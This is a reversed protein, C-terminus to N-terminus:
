PNVLIKHRLLVENNTHVSLIYMGKNLQGVPIEYKGTNYLVSHSPYSQIVQGNTNTLQISFQSHDSPFELYVFNTAPNPYVKIEKATYRSIEEDLIELIPEEIVQESVQRLNSTGMANTNGQPIVAIGSISANNVSAALDIELLGDSVWINQFTLSIPRNGSEVFLDLNSKRVEGEIFIDFVRRRPGTVDVQKGFYTENHFTIVTYSGNPVPIKYSMNAGFRHSQFLTENSAGTFSSVNTSGFFFPTDYDSSFNYGSYSASERSGTNLFFSAGGFEKSSTTGMSVIAIGSIIANNTSASLRLDLKGDNVTINDFVLTTERNSTELFMDLNSKVVRGEILIDFVRQGERAPIDNSGFYNEKHYTIVRYTGNPVPISYSLDPAFRHTQFMPFSSSIRNENTFSSSFYPPNSDSIFTNGEHAVDRAGGANIFLSFQGELKESVPINPIVKIASIIANNSSAALEVTLIGDNVLVNNFILQTEVNNFEKFMDFDKKVVKGEIAIDFVRQGEAAAPGSVGFYVEHHYTVVTYSGNPVPIDFKLNPAFVASQYIDKESSEARVTNTFSSASITSQSIPSFTFGQYEATSNGGLNVGFTGPNDTPNEVIADMQSSASISVTESFSRLGNRDVAEARLRHTGATATWRISYPATTSNGILQDGNFFNVREITSGTSSAEARLTIGTGTEFRENNSPSTLRVTPATNNETENKGDIRVLVASTYPELEIRSSYSRNMADVYTGNLPVTKKSKTPNHEFLFVEEPTTLRVDAERLELDDLWYTWNGDDSVLMIVADEVSIPSTLHVNYEGSRTGLSVVSTNSFQQWPSGAHRFFIRLSGPNSALGKFSLIYDKNAVISKVSVRAVSYGPSTIQLAYGLLKGLVRSIQCNSCNVGNSNSEFTGSTYLSNGKFGLVEFPQISPVFFRSNQDKSFRSQWRELNLIETQQTSGSQYTVAFNRNHGLPSTYRNNDFNALQSVDDKNTRITVAAQDGNKSFFINNTITINRTDGGNNSNGLLIHSETDYFTNRDVVINRVNALKIGTYNTHAITNNMVSVGTVNDDLFVGSAHPKYNFEHARPTGANSAMGNLIINGVVERGSFVTGDQGGFSYIGGGDNKHLCYGDVLNNRIKTRNGGFHIGNYGTNIVQNNEILVDDSGAFIGIGNNNGSQSGGQFVFSNEVINNTVKAGPNGFRLYIGTNLSYNIKCNDIELEEVSTVFLGNEGAFEVDSNKLKIGSGGNLHVADKNAGRFQINEITVYSASSNKTLLHDLSGVSVSRSSANSSGFFMNLRKTSRNYFWEGAQDLTNIHDQIFFGWNVSPSYSSSGSYNISGGSHSTIRHRDVIWQVKRIVAEGGNFSPSSSLQSSSVSNNGSVGTINLYGGNAANKNPYRGMEMLDDDMIVVSVESPSFTNSSEFIGNGISRWGTVQALGTIIPKSGSGYAGITIPNTRSGSADIHITGFFVDGRRFYIADGPRLSSFIANLKDISRWPTNPNQAEAATRSDNGSSSSFYYNVAQTANTTLGLLLVILVLYTLNTKM